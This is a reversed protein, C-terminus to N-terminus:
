GAIAELYFRRRAPSLALIEGEPWGYASAIRHLDYLLRRAWVDLRAWLFEGVDLGAEWEHGCDPCSVGILPDAQPDVRALADEVAAVVVPPLDVAAVDTGDRRASVVCADLLAARTADLDGPRRCAILDHGTPPRATVAYGDLLVSVPEAPPSGAAQLEALGFALELEEGCAPCATVATVAPGFEQWLDILRRDREGVTLHAVPGGTAAAAMVLSQEVPPQGLGREWTDLLGTTTAPATM